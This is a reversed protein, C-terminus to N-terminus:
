KSCNLSKKFTYFAQSFIIDCESLLAGICNKQCIIAVFPAQKEFPWLPIKAEYTDTDCPYKQRMLILYGSPCDFLVAFPYLKPARKQPCLKETGKWACNELIACFYTQLPFIKLHNEKNFILLLNVAGMLNDAFAWLNRVCAFIESQYDLAYTLWNLWSLMWLCVSPNLSAVLQM